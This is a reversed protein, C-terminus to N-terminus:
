MSELKKIKEEEFRVIGMAEFIIESIITNNM